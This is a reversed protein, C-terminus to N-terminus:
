ILGYHKLAHYIGDCYQESTVYDAAKKAEDTGSGMCIGYAAKQLMEVDNRGDGFAYTDALDAGILECVEEIGVAKSYGKPVLEYVDHGHFLIEYDSRLDSLLDGADHGRLNLSLKSAKFVDTGKIQRHRNGVDAIVMDGYPDGAFDELDFYLHEDGELIVAVGRERLKTITSIILDNDLQLNKLIKDEMEIYTGCGAVIGDFGLSLLAKDQIFARTRGSNIFCKHGNQKAVKIAARTSDPISRYMNWLTGDIDFFLIKGDAM